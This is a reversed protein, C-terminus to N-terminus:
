SCTSGASRRRAAIDATRLRNFAVVGFLVLAVVIAVIIWILM